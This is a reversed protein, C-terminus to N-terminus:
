VSVLRNEPFGDFSRTETAPVMEGKLTNHSHFILEHKRRELVPLTTTRVVESTEEHQRFALVFLESSETEGAAM